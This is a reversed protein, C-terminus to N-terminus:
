RLECPLLRPLFVRSDKYACHDSWLASILGLVTFTPERGLRQIIRDYEEATLGLERARDLTAKPEAGTLWSGRRAPYAREASSSPATRSSAASSRTSYRSGM